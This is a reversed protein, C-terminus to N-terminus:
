RSIPFGRPSPASLRGPWERALLLGRAHSRAIEKLWVSVSQNTTAVFRAAIRWLHAFTESVVEEADVPDALMGYALAYISEGHRQHLARLADAEGRAVGDLLQRDAVLTTDYLM